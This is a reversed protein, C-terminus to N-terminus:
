DEKTLMPWRTLWGKSQVRHNYYVEDSFLPSKRVKMEMMDAFGWPCVWELADDANLRVGVATATEPWKSLADEVSSYPLIQNRIHMRAQNKVSWKWFPDREELKAEYALDVAEDLQDSDYYVVDTDNIPALENRDHLQNWIYNRVFGAAIYGQPLHLARVHKLAEMMAANARVFAEAQRQYMDEQRM